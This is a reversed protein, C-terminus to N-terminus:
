GESTRRSKLMPRGLLFPPRSSRLYVREPTYSNRLIYGSHNGAVYAVTNGLVVREPGDTSLFDDLAPGADLTESFKSSVPRSSATALGRTANKAVASCQRRCLNLMTHAACHQLASSVQSGRASQATNTKLGTSLCHDSAQTAAPKIQALNVDVMFENDRRSSSVNSLVVLANASLCHSERSFPGYLEPM